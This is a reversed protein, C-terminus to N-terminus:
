EANINFVVRNRGTNKAEYLALDARKLVAEFSEHAAALTAGISISLHLAAGGAAFVYDDMAARIKEALASLHEAPVQPCILIFEEGGWRGFVDTLRTNQAILKAVDTLVRDGVDHGFQDNVAKFHDVDLLLVGMQGSRDTSFLQEIFQQVGARNMAGTLVDTVSRTEFERKELELNKYDSILRDFRETTLTSNRYLGYIKYLVEGIILTLWMAIIVLYLTEKKIWAGVLEISQVQVVNNSHFIFDVGLYTVNTFEPASHIRPVDFDRIWWEGVGFEKMQVYTPETLDATRIAVSMFKSSLGPDDSKDFLPNYNRMFIRIRPADGSYILSLKLSDYNSLDMGRTADAGLALTYGCSYPDSPVYECHFRQNAEDLWNISSRGGERPLGYLISPIISNPRLPMIKPPLFYQALIAAITLLAAALRAVTFHVAKIVM